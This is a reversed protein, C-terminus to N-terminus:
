KCFLKQIIKILCIFKQVINNFIIKRIRNFVVKQICVWYIYVFFYKCSSIFIFGFLLSFNFIYWFLNIVLEIEEYLKKIILKREHLKTSWTDYISVWNVFNCLLSIYFCFYGLHLYKSIYLIGFLYEFEFEFKLNTEYIEGILFLDFNVFIVWCFYGGM